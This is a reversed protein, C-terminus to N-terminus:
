EHDSLTGSNSARQRMGIGALLRGIPLGILLFPLAFGIGLIMTPVFTLRSLRFGRPDGQWLWRGALANLGCLGALTFGLVSFWRMGLREFPGSLARFGFPTMPLEGTRQLHRTAWVAAPGFGAGLAIHIAGAIRATRSAPRM